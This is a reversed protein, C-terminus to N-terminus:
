KENKNIKNEIDLLKKKGKKLADFVGSRTMALEESIESISLDEFLQLYLAQKQSQALLDKYKEYLEIYKKREEFSEM